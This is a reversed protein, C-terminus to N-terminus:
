LGETLTRRLQKCLGLPIRCDPPLSVKGATFSTQGLQTLARTVKVPDALAWAESPRVDAFAQGACSLSVTQTVAAQEPLQFSGTLSWALQGQDQRQQLTLNLKVGAAPQNLMAATYHVANLRYVEDGPQIAKLKQPHFGKVQYIDAEPGRSLKGVPASVSWQGPQRRVALTDGAEPLLLPHAALDAAAKIQLWGQAPEVARVVGCYLGSSGPEGSLFAKDRSDALHSVTFHGGRNFALLLQDELDKPAQTQDLIQRYASVALAVYEPSRKRGEIKFAAVGAQQLQQLWAALSLDSASLKYPQKPAYCRGAQDLLQYPLRCPQACAGRNASRGGRYFSLLCAGSCAVCLAGQVFVETEINFAAAAQTFSKIQELSLERPLVVRSFGLQALGPLTGPDFIGMQTSAHLPLQPFQQHLLLALGLDQVLIASIGAAVAASATTLARDLEAEEILTNLTLYTKLGHQQAQSIIGALDASQFSASPKGTQPLSRAHFPGVGFYVADAGAKIAATLMAPSGAPALLESNM